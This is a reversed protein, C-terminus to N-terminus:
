MQKPGTIDSANGPGSQKCWCLNATFFCSPGPSPVPTGPGFCVYSRAQAHPPSAGRPRRAIQAVGCFGRWASRLGLGIGGLTWILVVSTGFALADAGYSGIIQLRALYCAPRCHGGGSEVEHFQQGPQQQGRQGGAALPGAMLGDSGGQVGAVRQLVQRGLDAILGQGGLPPLQVLVRLEVMQHLLGQGVVLVQGGGLRMHLRQQAAQVLGVRLAPRRRLHLQAGAVALGGIVLGQGLGGVAVRRGLPFEVGAQLQGILHVDPALHLM